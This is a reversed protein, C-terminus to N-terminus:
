RGIVTSFDVGTSTAIFELTIFNISRAPKVYIAAVFRNSDVVDGGNNTADCVVRFDTIGRRGQINRLFPEVMSVFQARTFTDNFEFLKYRAAISIAKELINFLRRVNIRDFASPKSTMTRDGFLLTGSGPITIIPNIGKPYLVDRESLNPNYALKIVNKVGGRNYGAPSWWPDAEEDVRACLGATDGNMPVWRYTNSFSDGIYKFGTDMVAYMAYQDALALEINKFDLLDQMKSLPLGNKHPSIFAMADKRSYVVNEVVHRIVDTSYAGTLFLNVDYNDVDALLNYAQKIQYDSPATGSVGGALKRNYFGSVVNGTTLSASVMTKFSKNSAYVDEVTAGWSVENGGVSLQTPANVAYVYSSRTNIVNIYYNDAGNTLKGNSAKSLGEFRELVQNRVGSVSGDTDVILIHMEDNKNSDFVMASPAVVGYGSGGNNITISYIADDYATFRLVGGVGGSVNQTFPTLSYGTGGKKRITTGVTESTLVASTIVGSSVTYTVTAGSGAGAAGGTAVTHVGDSYGAGGSLIEVNRIVGDALVPVLEAGGTGAVEIYAGTNFKFGSDLIEVSSISGLTVVTRLSSGSGSESRAEVFASTRPPQAFYKALSVQNPYSFSNADAWAKFEKWTGADIMYVQLSNAGLGASKAVFEGVDAYPFNATPDANLTDFTTKNTVLSGKNGTTANLASAAEPRVCWMKNAYKLFEAGAYWEQYNGATPKGFVEVYQSFSSILVPESIPGKAFRGVLGGFSSAVQPVITTFDKEVIAISPSLQTAM